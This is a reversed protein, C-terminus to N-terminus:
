ERFPTLDWSFVIWKGDLVFGYSGQLHTGDAPLPYSFEWYRRGDVLALSPLQRSAPQGTCATEVAALSGALRYSGGTLSLGIDMNVRGSFQCSQQQPAAANQRDDLTSSAKLDAKWGDAQSPLPWNLFAGQTSRDFISVLGEAQYDEQYQYGPATHAHSLSVKLSGTWGLIDHFGAPPATFVPAPLPTASPIPSATPEPSPIPAPVQIPGEDTVPECGCLLVALILIRRM